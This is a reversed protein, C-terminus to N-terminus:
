KELGIKRTLATIRSKSRLNELFPNGAMNRTVIFVPNWEQFRMKRKLWASHLVVAM